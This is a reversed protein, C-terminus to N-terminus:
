NLVVLREDSMARLAYRPGEKGFGSDKTGGFPMSDFRNSSTANVQLTGVRVRRAMTKATELSDTFVGAALGFPTANVLDIAEDITAFPVISVVPAFIEERMVRMDSRVDALVTPCLVAGDRTGGALVQAGQDVAERVWAQARIAEREAILPGVDTVPDRPDGAVLASAAQALQESVTDVVAESVLLRQVSTCVQGAKRFAATRVEGVARKLDADACVVTAAISGLELQSRRLGITHSIHRGTATSGTFAYFAFRGDRLLLDGVDPGGFVVNLYGPPLGAEALLDCFAAASLPTPVAPKLVVANGAGLAPGVKHVVTNLPSNFPTIACVVGLPEYLTFAVKHEAGDHSQLPVVEGALRQSEEACLRLTRVARRWDAESDALTFGTEATHLAVLEDGRAELLDAARALVRHRLQPPFAVGRVARDAAEVAAAVQDPTPLGVRGIETGTFKDVVPTSGATAVWEGGVYVGHERM